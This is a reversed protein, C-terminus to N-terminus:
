GRLNLLELRRRLISQRAQANDDAIDVDVAAMQVQLAAPVEVPDGWAQRAEVSTSPYAPFTVPSIEHLTADTVIRIAVGEREVWREGDPLLTFAFSMGDVDGRAISVLADHGIQTDPVDVTFALGIDDPALRLTGATTRGLVLSSDHQWLARIDAGDVDFANPAIEERFGWLMDSLTNFRVAYGMIQTPGDERDNIRLESAQMYRRQM